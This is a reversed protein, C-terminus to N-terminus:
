KSTTEGGAPGLRYQQPGNSLGPIKIVGSRALLWILGFAAMLASVLRSYSLDTGPLTPQDPRFAEVIFRGVGALVLWLAFAMGPKFKDAYRRTLWLILGVALVNWIMEYAFTPHFRTTEEPYRSLDTFPSIRHEASIPIGWPLDTPPGYLEQNIFNAPRAVAQGLLLAPAVSDVLLLLDIKQRRAYIYAAGLGFLIAGYIHLGGERINLMALPNEAYYTNGGLLSTAVYWIRAGVVGAPLVWLMAEWVFDPNGGRRRLEREAVFSGILVGAMVLVGYWYLSFTFGGLEVTFIVPDIM